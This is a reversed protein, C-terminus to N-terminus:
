SRSSASTAHKGAPVRVPAQLRRPAAQIPARNAIEVEGAVEVEADRNTRDHHAVALGGDLGAGADDGVRVRRRFVFLRAILSARQQLRQGHRLRSESTSSSM